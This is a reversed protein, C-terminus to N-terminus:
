KQMALFIFRPPIKKNHFGLFKGYDTV